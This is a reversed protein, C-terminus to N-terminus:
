GSIDALSSLVVVARFASGQVRLRIVFRALSSFQFSWPGSLGSM